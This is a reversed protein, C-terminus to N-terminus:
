HGDAPRAAALGGEVSLSTGTSGLVVAAATQAHIAGAGGELGGVQSEEPQRRYIDTQGIRKEWVYTNAVFQQLEPWQGLYDEYFRPLFPTGDGHTVLWYKPPARRVATLFEERFHPSVWPVVLPECTMFRSPSRHGSLFYIVAQSGWIYITDGATTRAKLYASVENVEDRPLTGSRFHRWDGHLVSRVDKLREKYAIVVTASSQLAIIPILLTLANWRPSRQRLEGWVEALWMGALATLPALLVVFHYNYYKAQAFIALVMALLWAACLRGIRRSSKVALLAAALGGLYLLPYGGAKEGFRRLGEWVFHWGERTAANYGTGYALSELWAERAGGVTLWTLTALPLVACGTGWVLLRGLSALWERRAVVLPTLPLFLLAYPYKLVALGGVLLGALGIRWWALPRGPPRLGLLAVAGAAPLFGFGDLRATNFAGLSYYCVALGAAAVLGAARGAARRVVLYQLPVTVLMFILELLHPALESIGFLRFAWAYILYIGPPTVDWADRYPMGGTLITQGIYAFYGHDRDFPFWLSPLGLVLTLAGLGLGDRWAVRKASTNSQIDQPEPTAETSM